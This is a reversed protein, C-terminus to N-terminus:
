PNFIAAPNTATADSVEIVMVDVSSQKFYLLAMMTLVDYSNPTLQLTDATNIVENALETLIKNSITEGNIAFRENYTLTHPSYFTVINLEEAYLLQTAFYATQSKGNTGSVLISDIKQSISDFAHDLQKICSLSPTTANTSWNNDLFEIVESYSRQKGAGVLEKSSIPAKQLNREKM